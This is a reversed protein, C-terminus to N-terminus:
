WPRRRVPLALPGLPRAPRGIRGGRVFQIDPWIASLPAIPAAAGSVPAPLAMM